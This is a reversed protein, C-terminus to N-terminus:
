KPTNALMGKLVDDRSAVGAFELGIALIKLHASLPLEPDVQPSLALPKPSKLVTLQIQGIQDTPYFQYLGNELTYRANTTTPKKFYNNQFELIDNHRAIRVKYYEGARLVGVRLIRYISCETDASLTRLATTAEDVTIGGTVSETIEPLTFILPALEQETSWNIEADGPAEENTPFFSDIYAVTANNLFLLKEDETFYPSGYKDQLIDFFELLQPTTM